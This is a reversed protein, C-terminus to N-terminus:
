YHLGQQTEHRLSKHPYQSKINQINQIKILVESQLYLVVEQM